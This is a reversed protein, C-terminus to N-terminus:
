YCHLGYALTTGIHTHKTVTVEGLEAVEDVAVTEREVSHAAVLGQGRIVNTDLVTPATKLQGLGGGVGVTCACDKKYGPVILCM